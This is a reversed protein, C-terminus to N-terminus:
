QFSSDPHDHRWKWYERQKKRQLKAYDRYSERQEELWHRYARDENQDWNHYDRNDPDYYRHIKHKHHEDDSSARTGAQIGVPGILAAGLLLVGFSKKIDRM